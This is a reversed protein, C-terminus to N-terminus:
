YPLCKYGELRYIFKQSPQLWKKSRGAWGALVPLTIFIKLKQTKWGIKMWSSIKGSFQHPLLKFHSSTRRGCTRAAVPEPAVPEAAVPEAALFERGIPGIVSYIHVLLLNYTSGKAREPKWVAYTLNWTPSAIWRGERGAPRTIAPIPKKKSM